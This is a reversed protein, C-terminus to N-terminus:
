RSVAALPPGAEPRVVVGDVYAAARGRAGRLALTTVPGDATFTLAHPQWLVEPAPNDIAVTRATGAVEVRVGARGDGDGGARSGLWFLLEYRQGPVTAFAQRVCAHRTAGPPFEVVWDGNPAVFGGDSAAQWGVEGAVLWGPIAASVAPASTAPPVAPDPEFSGNDVMAARAAHALLLVFLSASLPICRM